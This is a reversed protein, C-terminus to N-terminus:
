APVELLGLNAIREAHRVLGHEVVHPRARYYELQAHAIESADILGSSRDRWADRATLGPRDAVGLAEAAAMDVPADLQGLMEYDPLAPDADIGLARLVRTALVALTANDPHNITHWLPATALYDSVVVSGHARERISIQEVSMAAARRLAEDSAEPRVPADLGRAAAALIRLDHYPVVPPNESTDQPNRIIAHYPMLGDFRM